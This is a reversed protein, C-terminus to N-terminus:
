CFVLLCLEFVTQRECNGSPLRVGCMYSGQVSPLLRALWSASPTPPFCPCSFKNHSEHSPILSAPYLPKPQLITFLKSLNQPARNHTAIESPIQTWPKTGLTTSSSSPPVQVRSSPKWDSHPMSRPFLAWVFTIMFAQGQETESEQTVLSRLSVREVPVGGGVMPSEDSGADLPKSKWSGSHYILYIERERRLLRDWTNGQLLLFSVSMPTIGLQRAASGPNILATSLCLFYNPIHAKPKNIRM